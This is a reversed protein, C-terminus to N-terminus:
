CKVATVGDASCCQPPPATGSWCSPLPPSPGVSPWEPQRPQCGASLGSPASLGSCAQRQLEPSCGEPGRSGQIRSSGPTPLLGGRGSGREGPLGTMSGWGLPPFPDAKLRGRAGGDGEVSPGIAWISGLDLFSRRGGWCAPWRFAGWVVFGTPSLTSEAGLAERPSSGRTVPPPHSGVRTPSRGKLSARPCCDTQSAEVGPTVQWTVQTRCGASTWRGPPLRSSANRVWFDKEM